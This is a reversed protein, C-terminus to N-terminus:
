LVESVDIDAGSPARDAYVKNAQIYIVQADDRLAGGEKLGDLTSRILKDLDPTGTPFRPAAPRIRDANRGQGYHGKPRTLRFTVSVMAPGPVPLQGHERIARQVEGRVADRWPGVKKSAEYVAGHRNRTKSGQPAPAGDVTVKIM